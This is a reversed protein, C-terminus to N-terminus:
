EMDDGPGTTPMLCLLFRHGAAWGEANPYVADTGDWGCRQQDTLQLKGPEPFEGVPILYSGLLKLRTVRSAREDLTKGAPTSPLMDPTHYPSIHHFTGTISRKLDAWYAEM